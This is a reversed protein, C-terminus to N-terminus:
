PDLLDDTTCLSGPRHDESQLSGPDQVLLTQFAMRPNCPALGKAGAAPALEVLASELEPYEELLAGVTTEPGIPRSM